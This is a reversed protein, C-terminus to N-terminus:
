PEEKRWRTRGKPSRVAAATGGVIAEASKQGIVDRIVGTRAARAATPDPPTDLGKPSPRLGAGRAVVPRVGLLDGRILVHM